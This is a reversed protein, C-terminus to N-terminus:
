ITEGPTTLKSELESRYSKLDKGGQSLFAASAIYTDIKPIIISRDRSATHFSDGQWERRQLVEQLSKMKDTREPRQNDHLVPQRNETTIYFGQALIHATLVAGYVADIFQPPMKEKKEPKGNKIVVLDNRTFLGEIRGLDDELEGPTGINKKDLVIEGNM